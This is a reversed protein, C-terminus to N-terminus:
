TTVHQQCPLIVIVVHAMLLQGQLRSRGGSHSVEFGLGFGSHPVSGYKRIDLYAEYPGIDMGNAEIREQLCLLLAAGDFGRGYLPLRTVPWKLM